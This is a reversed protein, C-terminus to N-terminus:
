ARTTAVNRVMRALERHDNSPWAELADALPNLGQRARQNSAGEWRRVSAAAFPEAADLRRGELELRAAVEDLGGSPDTATPQWLERAKALETSAGEPHGMRALATASDAKVCARVARQASM